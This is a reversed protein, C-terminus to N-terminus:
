GGEATGGLGEPFSMVVGQANGISQPCSYASTGRRCISDVCRPLRLSASFTFALYFRPAVSSSSFGREELRRWSVQGLQLARMSVPLFCSLCHCTQFYGALASRPGFPGSNARRLPPMELLKQGRAAQASAWSAPLQLFLLSRTEGHQSAELGPAKM